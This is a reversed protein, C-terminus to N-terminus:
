ADRRRTGAITLAAASATALGAGVAVGYFHTWGGIHVTERGVFHLLAPPLIAFCAAALLISTTRNAVM